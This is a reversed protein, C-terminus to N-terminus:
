LLKLALKDIYSALHVLVDSTNDRPTIMFLGLNFM